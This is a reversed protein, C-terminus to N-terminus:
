VSPHDSGTAAENLSRLRLLTQGVSVGVDVFMGPRVTLLPRLLSIMWPEHELAKMVGMGRILPVKFSKGGIRRDRHFSIRKLIGSRSLMRVALDAM